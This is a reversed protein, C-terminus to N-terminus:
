DQSKAIRAKGYTQIADHIVQNKVFVPDKAMREDNMRWYKAQRAGDADRQAARKFVDAPETCFIPNWSAAFRKWGQEGIGVFALLGLRILGPIAKKVAHLRPKKGNRAIREPMLYIWLHLGKVPDMLGWGRGNVAARQIVNLVESEATNFVVDPAYAAALRRWNTEIGKGVEKQDPVGVSGQSGNVLLPQEDRGVLVVCWKCQQYFDWYSPHNSRCLGELAERERAIDTGKCAEPDADLSVLLEIGIEADHVHDVTPDEMMRLVANASEPTGAMDALM